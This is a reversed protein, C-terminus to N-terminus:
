RNWSGRDAGPSNTGTRDHAARNAEIIDPNKANSLGHNSGGSGVINWPETWPSNDHDWSRRMSDRTGTSGTMGVGRDRVQALALTSTICLVTLAAPLTKTFMRFM